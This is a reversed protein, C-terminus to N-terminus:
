LQLEWNGEKDSRILNELSRMLDIFTDWYLFTESCSRNTQAFEDFAKTLKASTDQFQKVLTLSATSSKHAVNDKLEMIIELEQRYKNKIDQQKLFEAWQLSSCAEKLMQLGKLSRIYNKELWFLMSYTFRQATTM